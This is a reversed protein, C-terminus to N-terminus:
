LLLSGSTGSILNHRVAAPLPYMIRNTLDHTGRFVQYGHVLPYYTTIWFVVTYIKVV